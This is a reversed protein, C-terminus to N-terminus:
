RCIIGTSVLIGPVSESICGGSNGIFQAGVVLNNVCSPDNVRLGAQSSGSVVLGSFTNGAAPRNADLDVQAIFIGQEGSNRIQVGHFLNDMSDRMFIGQKGNFEMVADSVLNNNFGIDLSMGAFPNNHLYLGTFISNETQYAAVGDYYNDYSTLGKVTLRRVIKETVLGGSRASHLTVYEILSDELARVTIANNRIYTLGGGDCIGGWCEYQQQSRNGDIVLNRVVINRHTVAPPTSVDGLVLVPSNSGAALILEANSSEGRLEVNDRDIVIATHCIYIGSFSVLGGEAPLNDIQQQIASCDKATQAQYTKYIAPLYQFISTSKARVTYSGVVIAIVIMIIVQTLVWRKSM